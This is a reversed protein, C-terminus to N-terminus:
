RKEFTYEQRDDGKILRITYIGKRVDGFDIVMKKKDVTQATILHGTASYIEVKAGMFRKDAKLIFVNADSEDHGNALTALPLALLVILLYKTLTKM